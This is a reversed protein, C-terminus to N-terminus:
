YTDHYSWRSTPMGYTIGIAQELLIDECQPCTGVSVYYDRITSQSEHFGEWYAYLVKSDTQYDMDKVTGTLVTKDGDYVHGITPPTTDVQFAWSTAVTSLGAKNFAQLSLNLIQLNLKIQKTM